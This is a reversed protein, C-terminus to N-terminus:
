RGTFLTKANAFCLENGDPDTAYFSREGWPRVVIEGASEEHVEGKSLCKLKKARAHVAELDGVSFYVPEPAPRPKKVEVLGLIVPGCDFYHRGGRIPRGEVGLLRGYFAAAKAGDSVQLLV